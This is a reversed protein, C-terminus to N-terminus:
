KVHGLATMHERVKAKSLKIYNCGAQACQHLIIGPGQPHTANHELANEVTTETVTCGPYTCKGDM